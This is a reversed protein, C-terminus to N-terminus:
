VSVEAAQEAEEAASPAASPAASAALDGSMALRQEVLHATVVGIREETLTRAKASDREAIADVVGGALAGSAAIARDSGSGLWLLVGLEAQMAVEERFLLPSQAAAAIEIQLHSAARRLALGPEASDLQDLARRLRMMDADTARRAALRAAAGALAAYRDGLDRIQFTTLETLRGQMARRVPEGPPRVFSGGSRGRRTEILGVKRLEKLAERVTDTSVGLLAALRLEGPLPEDPPILGIVIADTLRREVQEARSLPELPTFVAATAGGYMRLAM